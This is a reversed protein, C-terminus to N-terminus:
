RDVSRFFGVASKLTREEGAPGGLGVIMSSSSESDCRRVERGHGWSPVMTRSDEEDLDELGDLCFITSPSVVPLTDTKSTLLPSTFVTNVFSDSRFLLTPPEPPGLSMDLSMNPPLSSDVKEVEKADFRFTLACECGGVKGRNGGGGGLQGLWCEAAYDIPAINMCDDLSPVDNPDSFPPIRDKVSPPVELLFSLIKTDFPELITPREFFPFGNKERVDLEESAM